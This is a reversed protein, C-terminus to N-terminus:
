CLGRYSLVLVVLNHPHTKRAIKWAVKFTSYINRPVTVVPYLDSFSKLLTMSTFTAIM